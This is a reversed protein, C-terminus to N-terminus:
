PLATDVPPTKGGIGENGGRKERSSMAVRRRHGGGVRVQARVDAVGVGGCTTAFCGGGRGQGKSGEWKQLVYGGAVAAM